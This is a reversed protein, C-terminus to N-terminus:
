PFADDYMMVNDYYEFDLPFPSPNFTGLNSGPRERRRGALAGTVCVAATAFATSPNSAVSRSSYPEFRHPM